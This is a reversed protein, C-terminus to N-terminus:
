GNRFWSKFWKFQQGYPPYLLSSLNLKGRQCVAKANSFTQFGEIGHYRGMGSSGVGGFPLDHQAIHSLLDNICMGGCSVHKTIYEQYVSDYSFLYCALPKAQQNILSVVEDLTKYTIVPLLPGFIEEQMVPLNKSPNILLTIPLKRLDSARRTQQVALTVIQTNVACAERLYNQLRQFHAENIISSYDENTSFCPYVVNFQKKMHKIFVDLKNEPIFVYDPAICTQGANLGKAFCIMRAAKQLSFTGDIVLPSKGGLELTVPTLNKAAAQMVKKGVATSGTFLLHDFPLQSFSAAVKNGGTIVAVEDDNFCHHCIHKIVENTYPTYESMKICVRNGAALAYALPSLSLLAPYNWPVIIGVVGAPQYYVYNKAPQFIIDTHRKHKKMWQRLHRLVYKITSTIQFIESLWTENPSRYGFDKSIAEVLAEEHKIITFLLRKIKAKRLQYEPYRCLYFAKQQQQFVSSLDHAQDIGNM